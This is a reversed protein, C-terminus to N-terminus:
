PEQCRPGCDPSVFFATRPPPRLGVPVIRRDRDPQSRHGGRAPAVVPLVASPASALRADNGLGGTGSGARTRNGRRRVGYQYPVFLGGHGHRRLHGAGLIYTAMVSILPQFLRADFDSPQYAFSQLPTSTPSSTLCKIGTTLGNIVIISSTSTITPTPSRRLKEDQTTLTFTFDTDGTYYYDM